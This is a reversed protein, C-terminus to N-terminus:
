ASCCGRQVRAGRCEFDVIRVDNIDFHCAAQEISGPLIALAEVRGAALFRELPLLEFVFVRHDVGPAQGFRHNRLADLHGIKALRRGSGIRM